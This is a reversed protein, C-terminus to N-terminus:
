MSLLSLPFLPASSSFVPPTLLALPSTYVSTLFCCSDVPFSVLCCLPQFRLMTALFSFCIPPPPLRSLLYESQRGFRSAFVSWCSVNFNVHDGRGKKEYITFVSLWSKWLYIQQLTSSPHIFPPHLTSSPHIFPPHLTSSPHIFPPHLTSSCLTFVSTIQSSVATILLVATTVLKDGPLLIEVHLRGLESATKM